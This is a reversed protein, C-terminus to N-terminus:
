EPKFGEDEIRKKIQLLRASQKGTPLKKCFNCVVSVISQEDPALLLRKDRWV